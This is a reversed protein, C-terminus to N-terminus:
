STALISTTKGYSRETNENKGIELNDGIGKCIKPMNVTYVQCIEHLGSVKYLIREPSSLRIRKHFEAHNKSRM